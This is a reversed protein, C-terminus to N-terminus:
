DRAPHSADAENKLKEVRMRLTFVTVPGLPRQLKIMWPAIPEDSHERDEVYYLADFSCGVPRGCVATAFQALVCAQGKGLHIVQDASLPSLFAEVEEMTVNAAEKLTKM